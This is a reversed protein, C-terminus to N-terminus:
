FVVWQWLFFSIMGVVITLLLNRTFWGTAFAAIAGVLRANALGIELTDGSPMLVAPVVIATLVVPPVYRLANLLPQSLHIRGSMAFMSYRIAFTVLAMGSILLFETM